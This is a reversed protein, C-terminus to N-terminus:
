NMRPPLNFDNSTSSELTSAPVTVRRALYTALAIVIALRLRM